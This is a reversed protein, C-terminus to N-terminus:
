ILSDGGSEVKCSTKGDVNFEDTIGGTTDSSGGTAGVGGAGIAGDGRDECDPGNVTFRESHTHVGTLGPLRM